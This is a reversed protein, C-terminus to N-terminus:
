PKPLNRKQLFHFNPALIQLALIRVLFHLTQGYIAYQIQINRQFNLWINRFIQSVRAFLQVNRSIWKTQKGFFTLVLRFLRTKLWECEQSIHPRQSSQLSKLKWCKRKKATRQFSKPHLGCRLFKHGRVMMKLQCDPCVMLMNKVWVPNFSRLLNVDEQM